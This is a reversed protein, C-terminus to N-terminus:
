KGVVVKPFRIIKDNLTYGKEVTDFVKGKMDESPAPFETVAEHIEADFPVGTSEIAKLGKAQLTNQLRRFILRVGDGIQDENSEDDAAKIAREIDDLVPLLDRITDGSATKILDIREKATRKRYNDFEAVQRLYKDKLEQYESQVTELEEELKATKSRRSRKKKPESAKESSAESKSDEQSNDVITEETNPTEEKKSM